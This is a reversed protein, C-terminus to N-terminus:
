MVFTGMMARDFYSERSRPSGSIPMVKMDNGSSGGSKVNTTPAHVIVPAKSEQKVAEQHDQSAKAVIKGSDNDKTAWMGGLKRGAWDGLESGGFGGAVGGILGGVATGVGPMIATGILAGTTAGAEAGAWGGAVAGAGGGAAKAKAEKAQQPTIKGAKLAADVDQYENYADYATIATGAIGLAKGAKGLGKAVKSTAKAAGKAEGELGEAAGKAGKAKVESEGTKAKEETKPKVEEAQGEKGKGKIKEKIKEKAGHLLEAGTALLSLPDIGGGDGEAKADDAFNRTSDASRPGVDNDVLTDDKTFANAVTPTPLLPLAFGTAVAGRVASSMPGEQTRLPTSPNGKVKIPEEAPKPTVDHATQKPHAIEKFEVDEADNISDIKKRRFTPKVRVLDTQPERPKLDPVPLFNGEQHEIQKPPMVSESSPSPLVPAVTAGSPSPLVPVVKAAVAAGSPPPLMPSGVVAAATRGSNPPLTPAVYFPPKKGEAHESHEREVMKVILREVHLNEIKDPFKGVADGKIGSM